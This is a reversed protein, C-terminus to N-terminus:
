EFIYPSGSVAEPSVSVAHTGLAQPSPPGWGITQKRPHRHPTLIDRDQINYRPVTGM